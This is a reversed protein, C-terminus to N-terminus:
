QGNASFGSIKSLARELYDKLAQVELNRLLTGEDAVSILSTEESVVVILADSKESLGIAARHRTGLNPDLDPNYSLPLVCGAAKIRDGQILVAGDHLPSDKVFLSYLLKRNILADLPVAAEILNDFGVERQIVILAGLKAKALKTVALTIDDIVSTIEINSNKKFLPRLGFKTLGRRIEDQFIVVILLISSDLFNGLIWSVTLLGFFNAVLYMGIVLTLGALMPASRTGRVLLLGRYVLVAVLIVDVLNRVLSYDLLLAEPM